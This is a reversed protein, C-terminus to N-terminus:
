KSSDIRVRTIDIFTCATCKRLVFKCNPLQCEDNTPSFIVSDVANECSPHRTENNPFACDSYSKYVQNLEYKGREHLNDAKDKMIKLQKRRWANISEKFYM